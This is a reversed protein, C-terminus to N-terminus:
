YTMTKVKKSVSDIYFSETEVRSFWSKQKNQPIALVTYTMIGNQNKDIVISFQYGYMAFNGDCLKIDFDTSCLQGTTAFENGGNAIRFEEQKYSIYNLTEIASSKNMKLTVDVIEYYDNIIVFIISCVIILSIFILFYRLKHKVLM